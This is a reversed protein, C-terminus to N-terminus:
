LVANSTFFCSCQQLHFFHKYLNVASMWKGYCALLSFYFKFNTPGDLVAEFVKAQVLALGLDAWLFSLSQDFLKLSVNLDVCCVGLNYFPLRIM